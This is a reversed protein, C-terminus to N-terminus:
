SDDKPKLKGVSAFYRDAEEKNICRRGCSCFYV